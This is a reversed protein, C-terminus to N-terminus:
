TLGMRRGGTKPEPYSVGLVRVLRPLSTRGHLLEITSTATRSRCDGCIVVMDTPDCDTLDGCALCARLYNAM